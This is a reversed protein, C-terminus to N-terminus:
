HTTHNDTEILRFAEAKAESSVHSEFEEVLMKHKARLKGLEDKLDQVDEGRLEMATISDEFADLLGASIRHRRRAELHMEAVITEISRREEIIRELEKEPDM